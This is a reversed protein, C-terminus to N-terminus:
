EALIGPELQLGGFAFSCSRKPSKAVRKVDFVLVDKLFLDVGDCEHIAGMDFYRGGFLEYLISPTWMLGM